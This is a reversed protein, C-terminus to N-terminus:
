KHKIHHQDAFETLFKASTKIGNEFCRTDIHEDPGHNNQDSNAYPVVIVPTDTAIKFYGAPLSGPLMPIEVVDVGWAAELSDIVAAAAPLELDEALPPFSGLKEVSVDPHLEDLYKVIGEYVADPNQNPLLRIDIKASATGPIITKMGEGVYGSQIGNINLTPKLLLEEYYNNGSAMKFSDISLKEKISDTSLPIKDTIARQSDTIMIDDYFGPITITGDDEYLSDIVSVLENAANPVPGGYNGSHIHSTTTQLSFEIGLMGRCGYIITPRGSEHMSGDAVYILDSEIEEPETELFEVLGSSGNEEEGELLIKVNVPLEGLVREVAEIALIHSLFQGKNDGSGRGYIANERRKPEFPDSSWASEDVPQVDYHGYFLITPATEHVIKEGYVIPYSSTPLLQADLGHDAMISQVLEACDSVGVGQSSISPQRILKFLTDYCSDMNSEISNFITDGM